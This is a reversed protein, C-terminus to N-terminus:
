RRRDRLPHVGRGAKRLFAGAMVLGVFGLGVVPGWGWVPLLEARLSLVAGWLPVGILIVTLIAGLASLFGDWFRIM